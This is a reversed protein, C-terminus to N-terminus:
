SHKSADLLVPAGCRDWADLGVLLRVRFVAGGGPRDAASITGGHAAVIRQCIALGLGIGTEKTSVFPDFIRLGLEPPLGCGSDAVELTLSPLGSGAAEWAQGPIVGAELDRRAAIRIKGGAPTADLANLLLNLLVQRIQGPDAEIVLPEAPLACEIRVGQRESRPSVLSVTQKVVPGVPFARREPRPPRAFDLFMQVLRELRTIEEELVGLDRSELGPEDGQELASQVLVKMSMLPNRMEHALGAALQGVAALQDARLVERQSQQLRDVVAGVQRGLRGLTEALEDLDWHSSVPVPAAVANLRGAADRLPVGLQFISRNVRRALSLGALLGAAAGCTGLVLFGVVIWRELGQNREAAKVVLDENFDLYEQAPELINRTLVEQVAALETKPSGSGPRRQALRDFEKFFRSYGDKIRIMLAQEVPTTALRDAEDLWYDTEKRLLPVSDLHKPDDTLLFLAIQTWVERMGIEFEEAARVSTVNLALVESTDRQLRQVYWAAAVGTALLIGSVLAIPVTMHITLRSTM